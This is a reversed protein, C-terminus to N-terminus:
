MLHGHFSFTGKHSLLDNGQIGLFGLTWELYALANSRLPVCTIDRGSIAVKGGNASKCSAKMKQVYVSRESVTAFEVEVHRCFLSFKETLSIVDVGRSARSVIEWLLEHAFLSERTWGCM